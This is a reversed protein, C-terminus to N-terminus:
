GFLVADDSWRIASAFVGQPHFCFAKQMQSHEDLGLSNGFDRSAEYIPRDYYYTIATAGLVGLWIPMEEKAFVTRFFDKQNDYTYKAFDFFAPKQYLLNLDKAEQALLNLGVLFSFVFGYFLRYM